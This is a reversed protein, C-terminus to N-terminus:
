SKLGHGEPYHIRCHCDKPDLPQTPVPTNDHIGMSQTWDYVAYRLCETDRDATITGEIVMERVLADAMCNDDTCWLTGDERKEIVGEKLLTEAVTESVYHAFNEHQDNVLPRTTTM